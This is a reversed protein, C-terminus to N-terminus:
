FTSVPRSRNTAPSRHLLGTEGTRVKLSHARYKITEASCRTLVGREAPRRRLRIGSGGWSNCSVEYGLSCALDHLQAARVGDMPVGEGSGYLNGLAACAQGSGVAQSSKPVFWESQECTRKLLSIGGAMEKRMGDGAIGAEAWSACGPMFGQFCSTKFFTAATTADGNEQHRRAASWCNPGSECPAQDGLHRRMAELRSIVPTPINLKEIHRTDPPVDVHSAFSNCGEPCDGEPWCGPPARSCDGVKITLQHRGPLVSGFEIADKTRHGSVNGLLAVMRWDASLDATRILVHSAGYSLNLDVSQYSLLPAVKVEREGYVCWEQCKSGPCLDVSCGEGAAYTITAAGAEEVIFVRATTTEGPKGFAGNLRVDVPVGSGLGAFVEITRTDGDTLLAFGALGLSALAVTGFAVAAIAPFIWDRRQPQWDLDVEVEDVPNEIDNRPTPKGQHPRKPVPRTLDKTKNVPEPRRKKKKKKPPAGSLPTVIRTKAAPKPKAAGPPPTAQNTAEPKPPYRDVLSAPDPRVPVHAEPTESFATSRLARLAEVVEAASSPRMEPEMRMCHLALDGLGRCQGNVRSGISERALHEEAKTMLMLLQILTAGYFVPEGLSMEAVLAGFSFLDSKADLQVGKELQEPAMYGPTGKSMGTGTLRTQADVAKAIGLDLLKFTGNSLVFVNSPKLDRHVLGAGHIASLGSAIALAVDVVLLPPLAGNELMEDLGYGDLFDMVLFPIGHVEGVDLLSVVNPHHVRSAAVAEALMQDGIKPDSRLLQSSPVKLAYPTPMRVQKGGVEKLRFAKFVQGMGGEGLKSVLEYDGFRFPGEMYVPPYFKLNVPM